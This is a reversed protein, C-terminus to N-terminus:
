MLPRRKNLPLIYNCYLYEFIFLVALAASFNDVDELVFNLNVSFSSIVSDTTTNLARTRLGAHYASDWRFSYKKKNNSSSREFCRFLFYFFIFHLLLLLAMNLAFLFRWGRRQRRYRRNKISNIWSIRIFFGMYNYGLACWAGYVFSNRTLITEWAGACFIFSGCCCCCCFYDFDFSEARCIVSSSSSSKKHM